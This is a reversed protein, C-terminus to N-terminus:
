CLHYFVKKHFDLQDGVLADVLRWLPISLKNDIRDAGADVPARTSIAPARKRALASAGEHGRMQKRARVCVCKAAARARSRASM